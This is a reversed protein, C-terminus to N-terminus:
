RLSKRPSRAAAARRVSILLITVCGLLLLFGAALPLLNLAKVLAVVASVLILVAIALFEDDLFLGIIEKGFLRLPNM